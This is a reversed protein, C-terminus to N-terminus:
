NVPRSAIGGAIVFVLKLQYNHSRLLEEEAHNSLFGCEVLVGPCQIHDMLYINTAKQVLRRSQPLLLRKYEAQIAEALEKSNPTQAYFVQMGSYRPDAFYNQHISILVANLQDNVSSVRAKLDSMKRQAITEGQTHLDTDDTRLMMTKYGLLNLISNLKLAIHLNLKSELVGTVSVAGGDEGGHGADIVFCPRTFLPDSVGTPVLMRDILIVAAIMFGTLVLVALCHDRYFKKDM